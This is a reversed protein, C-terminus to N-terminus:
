ISKNFIVEPNNKYIDLKEKEFSLLLKVWDLLKEETDNWIRFETEGGFKMYDWLKDSYKPKPIKKLYESRLRKRIKKMARIRLKADKALEKRLEENNNTRYSRELKKNAKELEKLIKRYFIWIKNRCKGYREKFIEFHYPSLDWIDGHYDSDILEHSYLQPLWPRQTMYYKAKDELCSAVHYHINRIEIVSQIRNENNKLYRGGIVKRACIGPKYIIFEKRNNLLVKIKVIYFTRPVQDIEEYGYIKQLEFINHLHWNKWFQIDSRSNKRLFKRYEHNGSRGHQVTANVDPLLFEYSPERKWLSMVELIEEETIDNNIAKDKEAPM